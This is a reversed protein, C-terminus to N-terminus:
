SKEEPRRNEWGARMRRGGVAAMSGSLQQRSLCSHPAEAAEQVSTGWTARIVPPTAKLDDSAIMTLAGRWGVDDEVSCDAGNATDKKLAMGDRGQRRTEADVPAELIPERM